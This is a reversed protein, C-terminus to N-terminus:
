RPPLAKRAETGRGPLRAALARLKRWITDIAGDDLLLQSRYWGKWDHPDGLRKAPM